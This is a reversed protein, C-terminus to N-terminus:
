ELISVYFAYSLEYLSSTAGLYLIIRIINTYFHYRKMICLSLSMPLIAFYLFRYYLVYTSSSFLFISSLYIIFFTCNLIAKESFSLREHKKNLCSVIFSLLFLYYPSRSLIIKIYGSIGYTRSWESTYHQFSSAVIDSGLGTIFYPIVYGTLFVTLFPFILLLVCLWFRKFQILSLIFIPIWFIASKHFYLSCLILAIGGAISFVKQYKPRIIYTFGLLAISMSLSARAYSFRLLFLTVFFFLVLSEHLDLRKIAISFILIAGGWVIARFQLNQYNCFEAIMLYVDELNSPYGKKLCNLAQIYHFYDADHVAILCFLLLFAYILFRNKCFHFRKETYSPFCLSVLICYLIANCVTLETWFIEFINM